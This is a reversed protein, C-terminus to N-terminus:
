QHRRSLSEAVGSDAFDVDHRPTGASADPVQPRLIALWSRDGLRERQVTM